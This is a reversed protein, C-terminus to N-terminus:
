ESAEYFDDLGRKQYHERKVEADGVNEAERHKGQLSFTIQAIKRSVTNGLVKVIALSAVAIIAVLIIYEVMGQGLKPGSAPGTQNKKKM